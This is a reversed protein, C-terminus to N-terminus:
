RFFVEAATFGGDRDEVLGNTRILSIYNGFGGGGPEMEAASALEARTLVGAPGRAIAAELMRVARAPLKRAWFALVEPGGLPTDVNGAQARGVDTIYVREGREEVCGHTRLASKINGFGGGTAKMGALTAVQRWTLGDSMTSALAQMARLAGGGARWEGNQVRPAAASARVFLPSEIPRSKSVPAAQAAAAAANEVDMYAKSLQGSESLLRALNKGLGVILRQLTPPVREVVREVVKPTAAKGKGAALERRLRAVEAQLAKPDSAVVDVEAAKLAARLEELNIGPLKRGAEAERKEPTASADYTRKKLIKHRGFTGLWQPSWAIATGPPLGPLEDAIARDGAGVEQVWGAIAKREQPGTLQFALMLETQNLVDKNVAQPRQSILAAGVGYNRGLKILREVAGVMKAVDGRVHQPVFEQAEEFVVLLASRNRKKAHFLEACFDAVFGRQQAGTMESVDLVMSSSRTAVMEAFVKGATHPLPLDGHAGGFVPVDLGTGKGGAGLRLGWWVGVPDVICFQGGTEDLQEILRGAAYTKGSGRRGMFAYVQTAATAAPLDLGEGLAITKTM